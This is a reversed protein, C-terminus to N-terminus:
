MVFYNCTAKLLRPFLRARLDRTTKPNADKALWDSLPAVFCIEFLIDFM